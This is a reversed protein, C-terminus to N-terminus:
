QRVHVLMDLLADAKVYRPVFPAPVTLSVQRAKVAMVGRVWTEADRYLYVPLLGVWGDPNDVTLRVQAVGKVTGANSAHFRLTPVATGEIAPRFFWAMTHNGALNMPPTMHKEVVAEFEAGTVAQGGYRHVFDRLLADFAANPEPSRPDAMMQRLMYIVYAGKVMLLDQGSDAPSDLRAAGLWLPGTAVPAYNTGRGPRLLYNRWARLTTLAAEPGGEAEEYRLASFARLGETLWADHPTAPRMWAGFWQGAASFAPAFNTLEPSLDLYAQPDLAVLMPQPPLSEIDQSVGSVHAAVAPYPFPGLTAGFDNLCSVLRSGALALLADPDNHEPAALRLEIQRGDALGVTRAQERDQGFAFGARVVPAPTQWATTVRGGSETRSLRTGTALLTYKKDTELRLAFRAPQEQWAWPADLPLTPYWGPLSSEENSVAGALLPARGRYSMELPLPAAGGAPLRVYVWDANRPQLWALATGGSSVREVRLGADLGLLIGGRAGTVRFDVAAALDFHGSIGARIAYDTLRPAPAPAMANAPTFQTWIEPMRMRGARQWAYVRLPERRSPDYQASVWDGNQLKVQALLIASPAGQAQAQLLRAVAASGDQEAQRARDKLINEAESNPGARLPPLAGLARLFAAGDTFRFVAQTFSVELPSRGTFRRMQAAEITNPPLVQFTGSGRFVAATLGSASAADLSLTGQGLLFRLGQWTFAADHVETTAAIAPQALRDYRAALTQGAAPLALALLLAGLNRKVSTRRESAGTRRHM